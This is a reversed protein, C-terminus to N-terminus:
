RLLADDDFGVNSLVAIRLRNARRLAGMDVVEGAFAGAHFALVALEVVAFDIYPDLDAKM